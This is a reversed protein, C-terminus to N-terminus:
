FWYYVIKWVPIMLRMLPDVIGRLEPLEGEDHKIVQGEQRHGAEEPDGWESEEQGVEVWEPEDWDPNVPDSSQDNAVGPKNLSAALYLYEITKLSLGM